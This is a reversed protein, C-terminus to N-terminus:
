NRPVLISIESLGYPTTNPIQMAVPRITGVEQYNEAMVQRIGSPKPWSDHDYWFDNSHFNRVLIKTYRKETLRQIIGSFDGTESYGREGISAARDKMVVNNQAYIWSGFDLLVDEARQGQFQTEIDGVYRKGDDAFPQLPVRDVGLGSLLLCFTVVSGAAVIVRRVEFSPSSLDSIKPSLYILAALFWVAAILCGPGMHNLM